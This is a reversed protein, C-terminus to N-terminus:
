TNIRPEQRLRQGTNPSVGGFHAACEDLIRALEEQVCGLRREVESNSGPRGHAGAGARPPDALHDPRLRKQRTPCSLIPHVYEPAGCMSKRAEERFSDGSHDGDMVQDPLMSALGHPRGAPKEFPRQHGRGDPQRVADDCVRMAGCLLEFGLEGGCAALYPDHVQTRRRECVGLRGTPQGANANAPWVEKEDPSQFRPLIELPQQPRERYQGLGHASGVLENHGSPFTPAADINQRHGGLEADSIVDDDRSVDRVALERGQIGIGDEQGHRGNVFAKAQWQDLRHRAAHGHQCGVGRRKRLDSALGAQQDIGQALLGNHIPQRGQETVRLGPM